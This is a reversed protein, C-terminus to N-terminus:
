TVPMAELTLQALVLWHPQADACSACSAATASSSAPSRRAQRIGRAVRRFLRDAKVIEAVKPAVMREWSPDDKEILALAEPTHIALYSEDFCRIPVIHGLEGLLKHLHKWPPPLQM